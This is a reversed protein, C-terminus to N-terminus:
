MIKVLRLKDAQFFSAATMAKGAAAESWTTCEKTRIGVASGM